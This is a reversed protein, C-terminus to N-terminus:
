QFSEQESKQNNHLVTLIVSNNKSFLYEAMVLRNTWSDAVVIAAINYLLNM